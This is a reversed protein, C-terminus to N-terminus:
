GHLMAGGEVIGLLSIFIRLCDYAVPVIGFFDNLERFTATAFYLQVSREEM